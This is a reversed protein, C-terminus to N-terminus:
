PKALDEKPLYRSFIELTNVGVEKQIEGLENM